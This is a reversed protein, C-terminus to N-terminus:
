AGSSACAARPSSTSCRSVGCSVARPSRSPRCGPRMRTVSVPSNTSSTAREPGRGPQGSPARPAVALAGLCCGLRVEDRRTRDGWLWWGPFVAHTQDGPRYAAAQLQQEPGQDPPQHHQRQQKRRHEQADLFRALPLPQALRGAMRRNIHTRALRVAHGQQVVAEIRQGGAHAQDLARALGDLQFKEDVLDVGGAAQHRLRQRALCLLAHLHPQQHVKGPRHELQRRAVRLSQLRRAHLHAVVVGGTQRAKKGGVVAGVALQQHHVALLADDAPAVDGVLVEVEGVM